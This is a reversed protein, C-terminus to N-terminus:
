AKADITLGVIKEINEIMRLINDAPIKRIVEDEEDVVSVQFVDAEQHYEFKLRRNSIKSLEEAAKMAQKLRDKDFPVADMTAPSGTAGRNEASVARVPEMAARKMGGQTLEPVRM